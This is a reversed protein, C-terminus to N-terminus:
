WGNPTESLTRSLTRSSTQQPALRNTTVAKMRDEQAKATDDCSRMFATVVFWDCATAYM